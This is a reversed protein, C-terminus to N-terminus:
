ASGRLPKPKFSNNPMAGTVEGIHSALIETGGINAESELRGSSILLEAVRLMTDTNAEFVEPFTRKTRHRLGPTALTELHICFCYLTGHHKVDFFVGWGSEYTIQEIASTSM